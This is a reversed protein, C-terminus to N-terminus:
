CRFIKRFDTLFLVTANFDSLFVRCKVSLCICVYVCVCVCVYIYIYIYTIKLIIFKEPSLKLSFCFVYKVNLLKIGLTTGNILYRLFIHYM